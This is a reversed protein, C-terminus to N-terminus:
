RGRLSSGTPSWEGRELGAMLRDVAEMIPRNLMKGNVSADYGAGPGFDALERDTLQYETTGQVTYVVQAAREDVVNLAVTVYSVNKKEHERPGFETIVGAIAVAPVNQEDPQTWDGAMVEGSPQDVIVFRSTLKLHMELLTKAQTGLADRGDPMAGGVYRSRNEFQAVALTYTPGQTPAGLSEIAVPQKTRHTETVCGMAAAVAAVM